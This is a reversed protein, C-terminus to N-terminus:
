YRGSWKHLKKRNIKRGKFVPKGGNPRFAASGFMSRKYGRQIHRHRRFLVIILIALAIPLLILFTLAASFRNPQKFLQVPSLSTKDTKRGLPEYYAAPIADGEMADIYSALAYWAKLEGGSEASAPVICRDFEIVTHGEADKPVISLMGKSGGATQKLTEATHLDTVVRYLQKKNLETLTGDAAMLRHDMTRNYIMRHTNFSYVLGKFYLRAAPDEPGVSIDVDALTKLEKGTLYFSVLPYGPLGDPGTGRSLVDYVEAATVPGADISACVASAPVITVDAGESGEASRVAYDYADAILNALSEEGPQSGFSGIPTFAAGSDALVQDYAYGYQSFFAKDIDKIYADAEKQIAADATVSGDVPLLEYVPDTYGDSTRKLVLHGVYQTDSGAAVITTKGVTLPEELVTGTHGSVIVDIEPVAKALEIDEAEAGSGDPDLIGSHSLCVIMDAEGNSRIESVVRQAYDVPDQWIVGGDAAEGAADYGMLGFVAIRIGGKRLVTYDQVGYSNFASHLAGAEEALVEDALTADWDINTGVIAPMDWGEATTVQNKQTKEDYASKQVAQQGGSQAVQLMDTLGAAGYDFEQDGFTTVDFGMQGMLMLAPASTRGITQYATGMTFGGADLVLSDPWEGRIQDIVAKLPAFGGSATTGEQDNWQVPQIHAHMDGTVILSVEGLSEATDEADEEGEAYVSWAQQGGTEPLVSFGTGWLTGCVLMM